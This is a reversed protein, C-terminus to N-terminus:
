LGGPDQISSGHIQEGGVAPIQEGIIYLSLAHADAADVKGDGNIDAQAVKFVSRPSGKTYKIIDVIDLANVVNDGNVDGIVTPTTTTSIHRIGSPAVEGTSSKVSDSVQEDTNQNQGWALSCFAMMFLFFFCRRMFLDQEICNPHLTLM